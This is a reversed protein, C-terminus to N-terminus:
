QFAWFKNLLFNIPVSVVLNILPALYRSIGFYMIWLWSLINNLFIGSLGYSAYTKLLAKLTAKKSKDQRHFVFRSNWHFSWLVSILFAVMNALIYDWELSLPELLKLTVINILYSLATNSLGVVGFRIFQVAAEKPYKKFNM